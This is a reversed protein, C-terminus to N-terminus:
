FTKPSLSHIDLNDGQMIDSNWWGMDTKIVYFMQWFSLHIEVQFWFFSSPNKNLNWVYILNTYRGSLLLCCFM